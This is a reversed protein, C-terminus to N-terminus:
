TSLLFTICILPLCLLYYICYVVVCDAIEPSPNTVLFCLLARILNQLKGSFFFDSWNWKTKFSLLFSKGHTWQENPTTEFIWILTRVLRSVLTPSIHTQLNTGGIPWQLLKYRPKPFLCFNTTREPLDQYMPVKLIYISHREGKLLAM